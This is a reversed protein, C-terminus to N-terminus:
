QTHRMSKRHSVLVSFAIVTGTLILGTGMFFLAAPNTEITSAYIWSGALPALVAAFSEFMALTGLARGTMDPAVSHSLIGRIAPFFLSGIAGTAGGVYFGEGVTSLSYLLFTAAEVLLGMIVIKLDFYISAVPDKPSHKKILPLLTTLSVLRSLGQIAGVYSIQSPTWQFRYLLYNSVQIMASMIAGFALFTAVNLLFLSYKGGLRNPMPEPALFKVLRDFPGLSSATKNTQSGNHNNSEETDHVNILTAGSLQASRSKRMAKRTLSEPILSVYIVDLVLMAPM